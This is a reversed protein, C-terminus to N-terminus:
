PRREDTRGGDIVRLAPRGQRYLPLERLRQLLVRLPWDRAVDQNLLAFVGARDEVLELFERIAAARESDPVSEDWLLSSTVMGNAFGIGVGSKFETDRMWARTADTDGFGQRDWSQAQPSALRRRIGEPTETCFVILGDPQRRTWWHAQRANPEYPSRKGNRRSPLQKVTCVKAALLEDASGHYAVEGAYKIVEISGLVNLERPVEGFDLELVVIDGKTTAIGDLEKTQIARRTNQEGPRFPRLQALTFLGLSRLKAKTGTWEVAVYYEGEVDVWRRGQDDYERKDAHQGVRTSTTMGHRQAIANLIEVHRPVLLRPISRTPAKAGSM